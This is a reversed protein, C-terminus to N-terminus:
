RRTVEHFSFNLKLTRGFAEVAFYAPTVVYIHDISINALYTLVTALSTTGSPSALLARNPPERLRNQIRTDIDLYSSYVYNVISTPAQSSRVWRLIQQEFIVKPDWHSILEPAYGNTREFEEALEEIKDVTEIAEVRPPLPLQWREAM